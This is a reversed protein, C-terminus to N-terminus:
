NQGAAFKPSSFMSLGPPDPDRSIELLQARVVVRSIPPRTFVGSLNMAIYIASGILLSFKNTETAGEAFHIHKAPISERLNGYKTSCPYQREAECSGKGTHGLEPASQPSQAQNTSM